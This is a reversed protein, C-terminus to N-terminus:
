RDIELHVANIGAALAVQRVASKHYYTNANGNVDEFYARVVRPGITLGSSVPLEFAVPNATFPVSTSWVKVHAPNEPDPGFARVTVTDVADVEAAEEGKRVEVQGKLGARFRDDTFAIARDRDYGTDAPDRTGNAGLDRVIAITEGNTVLPLDAVSRLRAYGAGTPDAPTATPPSVYGNGWGDRVTNAGLPLRLYPGRWGGPVLVQADEESAAVGNTAVAARLDFAIVPRTWLEGLTLENTGITRPLRGLDAVFGASADHAGLVAAEIDALTQQTADYRQSDLVHGLERTAIATVIALIALVAVLEVLTFGHRDPNKM